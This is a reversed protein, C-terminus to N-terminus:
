LLCSASTGFLMFSSQWGYYQGVVGSVAGGAITGAYVSSQHISMARSRTERHYDSILSMSAPFYFAEGTGRPRPLPYTALSQALLGHRRHRRVLLVTSRACPDQAPHPRVALRCASRGSCVDVHIILWRHGIARRQALVPPQDFPLCFIHSPPRCLQLLLCAMAYVRRVM